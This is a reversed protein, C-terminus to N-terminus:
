GIVMMRRAVQDVCFALLASLWHIMSPVGMAGAIVGAIVIAIMWSRPMPLESAGWILAWTVAGGVIVAPIMNTFSTLSEVGYEVLLPSWGVYTLAASVLLASVYQWS